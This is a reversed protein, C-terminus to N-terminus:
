GPEARRYIGRFWPQWDDPNRAEEFFQIVSGDDQESWTGRFPFEANEGLYVITGTLRMAGEPTLGGAIDIIVGPSVWLQRWRQAVPDFYNMSTGTSGRAGRWNEVLLCGAQASVISNSGAHRGDPTQVQWEGLWFDFERYESSGCPPAATSAFVSTGLLLLAASIVVRKGTM